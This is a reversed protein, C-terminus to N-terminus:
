LNGLIRAAMENADKKHAEENGPILHGYVNFTIEIRSHGMTKQIFKFDKKEQILKSAYYHRLAYPTYKPRTVTEGGNNETTMLGAERMLPAWCGTAFNTLPIPNGGETPFILDADSKPCRKRWDFLIDTVLSPLYITRKGAKSKVPGIIGTKDARQKITVCEDALCGWPLGRYESPRMGSFGALYIMPRYRAWCKEMYDNKRGMRDAAAYIDRIEADTPIEVEGGDEEYRGGSKITIGSAPDDVGVGQHKMEILVSHFSSLTRRALDRTKNALLWTRFQVIDPAQLEHVWKPWAYEKMVRARREYEKLTEPEVRERGDRGTKECIAIWQDVADAVSVSRSTPSRKLSGLNETFARAEKLTLFTRFAYGSKSGADAYRVQYTVGKAGLRKRIDSM